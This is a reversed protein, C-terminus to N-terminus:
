LRQDARLARSWDLGNVDVRRQCPARERAHSLLERFSIVSPRDPCRHEVAGVAKAHQLQLKRRAHVNVVLQQTGSDYYSGAFADGLLNQLQSALNSADTAKLTKPAATTSSGDQSANDVVVVDVNEPLELERLARCFSAAEDAGKFMKWNGAILM